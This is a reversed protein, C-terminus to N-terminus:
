KHLAFKSAEGEEAEDKKFLTIRRLPPAREGQWGSPWERIKCPLKGKEILRRAEHFSGEGQCRDVLKQPKFAAIGGCSTCCYVGGREVLSHSCCVRRLWEPASLSSAPTAALFRALNRTWERRAREHNSLKARKEKAKITAKITKAAARSVFNAPSSAEPALSAGAEDTEAEQKQRARRVAEAKNKDIAHRQEETLEKNRM